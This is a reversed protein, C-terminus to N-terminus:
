PKEYAGIDWASGQPRSVEQFDTTFFSPLSFGTDIAASGAQVQLDGHDGGFFLPNGTQGSTCTVDVAVSSLLNHTCAPAPPSDFAVISSGNLWCINNRIVAAETEFQLHICPGTNLVITNNAILTREAFTYDQVGNSGNDHILNNYIRNDACASAFSSSCIVIGSTPGGNLGNNRIRNGYVLNDSGYLTIASGRSNYFENWKITNGDTKNYLLYGNDIGAGGHGSDGVASGSDHVTNELFEHATTYVGCNNTSFQILHSMSNGVNLRQFRIHHACDSTYIAEAAGDPVGPVETQLSMDITLDQFIIHHPAGVTLKIGSYGDPPRIIPTEGPYGRITVAGSGFDTGSNVTFVSSDVRNISGGYIGSGDGRVCGLEGPTTEAVIKSITLWPAAKTGAASDNGTPSVFGEATGAVCADTAGADQNVTFTQGAITITGARAIGSNAAVTYDVVGTGLGSDGDTVTLFADNSVATWACAAGGTVIVAVSAPGGVATASASTPSILFICGLTRLRVQELTDAAFVEGGSLSCALLIALVRRIM